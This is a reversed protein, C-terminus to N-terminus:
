ALMLEFGYVALREFTWQWNMKISQVVDNM